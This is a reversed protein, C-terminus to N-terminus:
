YQGHDRHTKHTVKTVEPDEFYRDYILSFVLFFLGLGIIIMLGPEGTSIMHWLVQVGDMQSYDVQAM